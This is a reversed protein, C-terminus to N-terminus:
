RFFNYRRWRDHLLSEQKKASKGYKPHQKKFEAPNQKKYIVEV